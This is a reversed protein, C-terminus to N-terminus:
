STDSVVLVVEIIHSFSVVKITVKKLKVVMTQAEVAPNGENGGSSFTMFLVNNKVIWKGLGGHQADGCNFMNPLPTTYSYTGDPTTGGSVNDAIM